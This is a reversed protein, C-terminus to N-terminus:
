LSFEPFTLYSTSLLNQAMIRSLNWKDVIKIQVTLQVFFLNKPCSFTFISNFYDCFTSTLHLSKRRVGILYATKSNITPTFHLILVGTNTQTRQYYISSCLGVKILQSANVM